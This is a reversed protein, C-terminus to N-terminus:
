RMDRRASVREHDGHSSVLCEAAAVPTGRVDDFPTASGYADIPSPTSSPSVARFTSLAVIDGEQRRRRAASDALLLLGADLSVAVSEHRATQLRGCKAAVCPRSRHSHHWLCETTKFTKGCRPCSYPRAESHIKAHARVATSDKFRKGCQLCQERLEDSHKYLDHKKLHYREKFGIACIECVYPRQGTHTRQHNRLSSKHLLRKDCVPCVTSHKTMPALEGYHELLVQSEVTPRRRGVSKLKQNVNTVHGSDFHTSRIPENREMATRRCAESSSVDDASDASPTAQEVGDSPTVDASSSSTTRRSKCGPISSAMASFRFDLAGGGPSVINPTTPTISRQFVRAPRAEPKLVSVDDCHAHLAMRHMSLYKTSAFARGCMACSVAGGPTTTQDVDFCKRDDADFESRAISFNYNVVRTPAEDERKADDGNGNTRFMHTLVANHNSWEGPTVATTSSNTRESGRRCRVFLSFYM